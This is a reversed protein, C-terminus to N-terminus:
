TIDEVIIVFSKAITAEDGGSAVITAEYSM